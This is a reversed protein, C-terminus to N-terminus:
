KTRRSLAVAAGAAAPMAMILIFLPTPVDPGRPTVASPTILARYLTPTPSAAPRSPSPRASPSPPPPPVIAPALAVASEFPAPALSPPVPPPPPPTRPPPPPPPASPPPPPPPPPPPQAVGIYGAFALAAVRYRLILITQYGTADVVGVHRGVVATVTAFCVVSSLPRLDAIVPGGGPCTVAGGGVVPDSVQVDQAEFLTNNRVEYVVNVPSGAPVSPPPDDAGADGIPQGQVTVLLSLAGIGPIVPEAVANTKAAPAHAASSGFVTAAFTASNFERVSFAMAHFASAPLVVTPLALGVLAGARRLLRAVLM